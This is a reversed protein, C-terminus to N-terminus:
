GNVGELVKRVMTESVGFSRALLRSTWEHRRHLLRIEAYDETTLKRKTMRRRARERALACRVPDSWASCIAENRAKLQAPTM